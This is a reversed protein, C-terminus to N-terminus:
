QREWVAVSDVAQGAANTGKTSITRTKGDASVVSTQIVTPKGGKKYAVRVTNADVRTLAVTDGNPTEGTIRVDKGDYNATYDYHLAKGAADVGDVVTKVGSGAAEIRATGSKLGTGPTYKSKAANLKWTGIQPNSTQGFAVSAVLVLICVVVSRRTM